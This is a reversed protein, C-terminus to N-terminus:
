RIGLFPRAKHRLCYNVRLALLSIAGFLPAHVHNPALLDGHEHDKVLPADLTGSGFVDPAVPM